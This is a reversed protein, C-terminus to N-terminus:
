DPPRENQGERFAVDAGGVPRFGAPLAPEVAQTLELIESEEGAPKGAGTMVVDIEEQKLPTRPPVAPKPPASVPAPATKQPTATAGEPPNGDDAIIRRISALIEEMSPEQAKAPQSM